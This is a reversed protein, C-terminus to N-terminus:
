LGQGPLFKNTFAGAGNVPLRHAKMWTAFAAWRRTDHWGYPKGPPPQMFGRVRALQAGRLPISTGFGNSSALMRTGRALATVVGRIDDADRDLAAQNAVLVYESFTPVGLENVPRPVVGTPLTPGGFPAIVAAVMKSNLARTLDGGVTVVRARGGARAFITEAMARQYDLGQTGIPKTALEGVAELSLKPGILSTFPAQVLTAVSVIRAGRGRAELLDAESVIAMDAQGQQLKRIALRPDALVNLQAKLGAQAFYNERQAAFVANEGVNLPAMALRVTKTSAPATPEKRTGCGALSPALVAALSWIVLASIRRSM